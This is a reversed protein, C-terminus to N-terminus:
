YPLGLFSASFTLCLVVQANDYNRFSERQQRSDDGLCKDSKTLVFNLQEDGPPHSLPILLNFTVHDAIVQHCLISNKIIDM